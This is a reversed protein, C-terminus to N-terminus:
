RKEQPWGEYFAIAQNKRLGTPGKNLPYMKPRDPSDACRECEHAWGCRGGDVFWTDDKPCTETTYEM